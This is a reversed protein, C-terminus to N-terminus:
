PSFISEFGVKDHLVTCVCVAVNGLPNIDPSSPAWEVTEKLSILRNGFKSRLYDRNRTATHAPAGDQMFIATELKNEARLQAVLPVM